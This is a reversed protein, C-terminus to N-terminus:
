ELTVKLTLLGKKRGGNQLDIYIDNNSYVSSSLDKALYINKSVQRCTHVHIGKPAHKDLSPDM